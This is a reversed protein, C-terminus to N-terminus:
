TTNIRLSEELKSGIKLLKERYSVCQNLDNCIDSFSKIIAISEEPFHLSESNRIMRNVITLEIRDLYYKIEPTKKVTTNIPIFSILGIIFILDFGFQFFSVAQENYRSKIMLSINDYIEHGIKTKDTIDQCSEIKGLFENILDIKLDIKKSFVEIQDLIGHYLTDKDKLFIIKPVTFGFLYSYYDIKIYHIRINSKSGKISEILKEFGNQYNISLNAYKKTALIKPIQGSDIKDIIIPIVHIKSTSIEDFMKTEIEKKVWGSNISNESLLVFIFDSENIEDFVKQPISEGYEIDKDDIWPQIDKIKKLSDYVRLAFEKDKHSYSIFIKM